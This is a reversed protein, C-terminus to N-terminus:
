RSSSTIPHRRMFLATGILGFGTLVLMATNPEPVTNATASFDLSSPWASCGGSKCGFGLEFSQGAPVGILKGFATLVIRAGNSGDPMVSCSFLNSSCTINAAAVGTEVLTLSQWSVGSNNTFHLTGQSASLAFTFSLANVASCSYSAGCSVAADVVLPASMSTSSALVPSFFNVSSSRLLAPSFSIPSAHAVAPLIAMALVLLLVRGLTSKAFSLNSLASSCLRIPKRTM